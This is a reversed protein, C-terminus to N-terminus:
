RSVGKIKEESRKKDALWGFGNVCRRIPPPDIPIAKGDVVVYIRNKSVDIEEVKKNNKVKNM